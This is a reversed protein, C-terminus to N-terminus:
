RGPLPLPKVDFAVSRVLMLEQQTTLSNASELELTFAGPM